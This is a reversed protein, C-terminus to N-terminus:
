EMKIVKKLIFNLLMFKIIILLVRIIIIMKLVVWYQIKKQQYAVILIYLIFKTGSSIGDNIFKSTFKVKRWGMIPIKSEKNIM